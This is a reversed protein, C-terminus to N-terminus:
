ISRRPPRRPPAACEPFGVVSQATPPITVRDPHHKATPTKHVHFSASLHTTKKGRWVHSAPAILSRNLPTILTSMRSETGCQAGNSAGFAGSPAGLTRYMTSSSTPKENNLPYPPGTGVGFM